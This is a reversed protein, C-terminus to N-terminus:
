TDAEELTSTSARSSSREDLHRRNGKGKMPASREQCVELCKYEAGIQGWRIKEGTARFCGVGNGLDKGESGLQLNRNLVGWNM